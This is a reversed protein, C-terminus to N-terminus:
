ESVYIQLSYYLKYLILNQIKEFFFSFRRNNRWDFLKLLFFHRLVKLGGLILTQTGWKDSVFSCTWTGREKEFKLSNKDTSVTCHELLFELLIKPSRDMGECTIFTKTSRTSCSIVIKRSLVFPPFWLKSYIFNHILLNLKIMHHRQAQDYM